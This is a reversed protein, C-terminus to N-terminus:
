VRRLYAVVNSEYHGSARDFRGGCTILVLREPVDYLFIQEYPLVQKAYTDVRETVYRAEGDSSALIAEDGVALSLLTKLAGPRGNYDVHGALVITGTGDGPRAGDSWRGLVAPDEPIQLVRSATVGAEIVPADIDLSPLSLEFASSVRVPPAAGPAVPQPGAEATAGPAAASAQPASALASRSPSSSTAVSAPEASLPASAEAGGRGCAGVALIVALLAVSCVAIGRLPM